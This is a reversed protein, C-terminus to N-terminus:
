VPDFAGKFEREEFYYIKRAIMPRQGAVFLLTIPAPLNRIEDPTMLARGVLHQNLSIGTAESEFIGNVGKALAALLTYYNAAGTPAAPAKSKELLM